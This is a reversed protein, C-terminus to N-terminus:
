CLATAALVHVTYLILSILLRKVTAYYRAAPAYQVDTRYFAAMRTRRIVESHM